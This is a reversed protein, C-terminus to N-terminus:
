RRQFSSVLFSVNLSQDKRTQITLSRVILYLPATEIRYLFQVTQALTAGRLKVQVRTEPYTPNDGTAKPDISELRDKMQAREAIQELVQLLPTRNQPKIREAVQATQERLQAIEPAILAARDLDLEYRQALARQEETAAVIPSVVIGQVLAAAVVCSVPLMLWRERSSRSEIFAAIAERVRTVIENM